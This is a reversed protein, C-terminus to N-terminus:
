RVGMQGRVWEQLQELQATQRDAHHLVELLRQNSAPDDVRIPADPIAPMPRSSTVRLRDYRANIDRYRNQLAQYRDHSVKERKALEEKNKRIQEEGLRVVEAKYASYEDKVANLRATQVKLAISLILVIAGLGLVAYGALSLSLFGRHTV